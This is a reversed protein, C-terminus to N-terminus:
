GEVRRIPEQTGALVRLGKAISVDAGPEAHPPM